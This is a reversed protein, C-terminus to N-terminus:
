EVIDDIYTSKNSLPIVENNNNNNSVWTLTPLASVNRIRQENCTTPGTKYTSPPWFHFGPRLISAIRM